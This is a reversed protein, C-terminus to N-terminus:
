LSEKLDRHKSAVQDITNMVAFCVYHTRIYQTAQNADINIAAIGAIMGGQREILDIAGRVQAGTEIWEDVLLVRTGPVIAGRRLELTKTQRTYDIVNISDVAVPLKGGKRIPVFGKGARIALAGGLIFGLADIGVVLDYAMPAFHAAVDDILTAFARADAFLPTVDSRPGGTQDDILDLYTRDHKHPQRNM